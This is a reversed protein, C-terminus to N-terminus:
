INRSMKEMTLIKYDPPKEHSELIRPSFTPEEEFGPPFASNLRDAVFAIQQLLQPSHLHPIVLERDRRQVM